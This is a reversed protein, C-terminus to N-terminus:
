LVTVDLDGVGDVHGKLRDGREVAGVGAPTGTMIIDGPKLEWLRSLYEIQEPISWIMDALDATQRRRGNVDLWIAGTAPHGISAAPKLGTMPASHDFAKGIEWPRGTKKSVAQLDRRTMDLAVGYGFVHSLADDRAIDRGGTKLAVYLEIEWDVQKSGQPYPFRGDLVVSDATKMFFFPPEKDPDFGMERTHEAYNRGVCYIRRVPFRESRGDVPLSVVPSPPVIYSQSQQVAIAEESREVHPRVGTNV